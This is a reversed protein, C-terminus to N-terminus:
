AVVINGRPIQFGHLSSQLIGATSTSITAIVRVVARPPVWIECSSGIHQPQNVTQAGITRGDDYSFASETEILLAAAYMYDAALAGQFRASWGTIVAFRDAPVTYSVAFFDGAAATNNGQQRRFYELRQTRQDKLAPLFYSVEPFKM